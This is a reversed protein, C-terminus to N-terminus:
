ACVKCLMDMRGPITRTNNSIKERRQGCLLDKLRKAGHDTIMLQEACRTRKLATKQEANQFDAAIIRVHM